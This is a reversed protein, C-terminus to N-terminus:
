RAPVPAYIHVDVGSAFHALPASAVPPLGAAACLTEEEVAADADQLPYPAHAVAAKLLVGAHRAYLLYREALFHELSGPAANRVPGRPAYRGTFTAGGSRRRSEYRVTDGALELKMRARHYPLGYGLRAGAVALASAADLSFFWVGPDRGQFRVYTRLNIEHFAPLLPLPAFPAKTWPITFPVIGVYARGECTDLDLAAPVLPRLAAAEVEWHLFALHRWAQRM